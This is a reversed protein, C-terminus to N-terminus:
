APREEVPEPEGPEPPRPGGAPELIRGSTGRGSGLGADIRDSSVAM